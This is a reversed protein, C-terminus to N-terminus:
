LTSTFCDSWYYAANPIILIWAATPMKEEQMKQKRHCFCGSFYLMLVLFLPVYRFLSFLIFSWQQYRTIFVAECGCQWGVNKGANTKYIHKYIFNNQCLFPQMWITHRGLQYSSSYGLGRWLLAESVTTEWTDDQWHTLSTVHRVCDMFSHGKDKLYFHGAGCNLLQSAQVTGHAQLTTMTNCYLVM